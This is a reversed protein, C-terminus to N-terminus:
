PEAIEECGVLIKDQDQLALAQRLGVSAIFELIDAHRTKEPLLLWAHAYRRGGAGLAAPTLYAPCGASAPDALRLFQNRHAFLHARIEPAVRVNLTGPFPRWGLRERIQTDVWGLALFAAAQGFGSVVTGEFRM